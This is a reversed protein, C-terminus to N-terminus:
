TEAYTWWARGEGKSLAFLALVGPVFANTLVFCGVSITSRIDAEDELVKGPKVGVGVGVSAELSIRRFVIVDVVAYCAILTSIAVRYMPSPQRAMKQPVAVAAGPAARTCDM